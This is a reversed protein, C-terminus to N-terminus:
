DSAEEQETHFAEEFTMGTVNLIKKIDVIRLGIGGQLKRSLRLQNGPSEALGILGAFDGMSIQNKGMWKAINPYIVKERAKKMQSEKQVTSELIKRVRERSIGFKNGIEQLTCGDLRMSFMEIKQERTM